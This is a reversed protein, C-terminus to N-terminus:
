PSWWSLSLRVESPLENFEEPSFMRRIAACTQRELNRLRRLYPISPHDRAIQQLADDLDNENRHLDRLRAARRDIQKHSSFRELASIMQQRLANRQIKYDNYLLYIAGRQDDALEDFSGLRQAALDVPSQRFLEPYDRRTVITLFHSQQDPEMSSAMASVFNKNLEKVNSVLGDLQEHQRQFAQLAKNDGTLVRPRLQWMETVIDDYQHEWGILMPDLSEEYRQAVEQLDAYESASLDLTDLVELLDVLTIQAQFSDMEPLVRQRRLRRTFSTWLTQQRDDLILAVDDEFQQQLERRTDHWLRIRQWSTLADDGIGRKMAAEFSGAEELFTFTMIEFLSWIVDPNDIELSKLCNALAARSTAPELTQRWDLQAISTQPPLIVAVAWAIFCARIHNAVVVRM